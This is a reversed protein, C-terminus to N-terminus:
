FNTNKYYRLYKYTMVKAIRDIRDTDFTTSGKESYCQYLDYVFNNNIENVREIDTKFRKAIDTLNMIYKGGKMMILNFGITQQNIIRGFVM